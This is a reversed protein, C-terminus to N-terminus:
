QFGGGGLGILLRAKQRELARMVVGGREASLPSFLKTSVAGGLQKGTCWRGMWGEQGGGAGGDVSGKNVVPMITLLQSAYHKRNNERKQSSSRGRSQGHQDPM